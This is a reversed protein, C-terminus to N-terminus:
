CNIQHILNKRKCDMVPLIIILALGGLLFVGFLPLRRGYFLCIVIAFIYAPFELLGAILVNIYLNAEPALVAANLVLGYYVM